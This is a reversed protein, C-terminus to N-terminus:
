GHLVASLISRESIDVHAIDDDKGQAAGALRRHSERSSHWEHESQDTDSDRFDIQSASAKDSMETALEPVAQEQLAHCLRGLSM